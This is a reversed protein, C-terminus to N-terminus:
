ARGDYHGSSIRQQLMIDRAKGSLTLGRSNWHAESDHFRQLDIWFSVPLGRVEKILYGDLYHIMGADYDANYEWDTTKWEDQLYRGVACNRGESDTFVCNDQTDVARRQPEESYFDVTEKLIKAMMDDKNM